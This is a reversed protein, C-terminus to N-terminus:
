QDFIRYGLGNCLGCRGWGKYTGNVPFDSLGKGDCAICDINMPGKNSDTKVNEDDEDHSSDPSLSLLYLKKEKKDLYYDCNLKHNKWKKKQCEKGCYFVKKCGTCRLQVKKKGCNECNGTLKVIKNGPTRPRVAPGQHPISQNFTSNFAWANWSLNGM